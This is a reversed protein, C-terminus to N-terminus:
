RLTVSGAGATIHIDAVADKTELEKSEYSRDGVSIVRGDEGDVSILAGSTRLRVGINDPVDIIVSSAGSQVDISCDSQGLKIVIEGAGAKIDLDEILLRSLDLEATTAGTRLSIELPIDELLSVEWRSLRKEFNINEAQDAVTIKAVDGSHSHSVQPEITSQLQLNMLQEGSHSTLTFEGAHQVLDIHMAKANYINSIGTEFTEGVGHFSSSFFTFFSGFFLLIVVFSVLCGSSGGGKGVLLLMGWLVLLIPWFRWLERVTVASLVGINVLFWASGVFVIALGLVIRDAKM